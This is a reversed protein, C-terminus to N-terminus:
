SEVVKARIYGGTYKRDLTRLWKAPNEKIMKKEKSSSLGDKMVNKFLLANKPDSLVDPAAKIKNGDLYLYGCLVQNGIPFVTEYFEVKLLNCRGRVGEIAKDQIGLGKFAALEQIM